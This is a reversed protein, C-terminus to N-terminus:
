KLVPVIQKKSDDIIQPIKHLSIYRRGLEEVINRYQILNLNADLNTYNSLSPYCRLIYEKIEEDSIDINGNTLYNKVKDIEEQYAINLNNKNILPLIMYLEFSTKDIYMQELDSCLQRNNKVDILTNTKINYACEITLPIQNVMCGRSFVIIYNEDYLFGSWFFEDIKLNSLVIDKDSRRLTLITRNKTKNKEISLSDNVNIIEKM